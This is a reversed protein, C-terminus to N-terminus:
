GKRYRETTVGPAHMATRTCALTASAGTGELHAIVLEHDFGPLGWAAAFRPGLALGIGEYLVVGDKEWSFRYRDGDRRIVKTIADHKEGTQSEYGVLFRGELGQKPAQSSVAETLKGADRPHYFTAPWEGRDTVEYFIIGSRPDYEAATGSKGGATAEPPTRAAYLWPGVAIACGERPRGAGGSWALHWADGMGEIGLAGFPAGGDKAAHWAGAFM